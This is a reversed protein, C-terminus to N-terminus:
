CLIERIKKSLLNIIFNYRIRIIINIIHNSIFISNNYELISILIYEENM